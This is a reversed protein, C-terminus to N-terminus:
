NVKLPIEPEPIYGEQFHVGMSGLFPNGYFWYVGPETPFEKTWNNM